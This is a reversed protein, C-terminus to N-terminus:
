LIYHSKMPPKKSLELHIKKQVKLVSNQLNSQFHQDTIKCLLQCLFFKCEFNNSEQWYMPTQPHFYLTIRVNEEEEEKTARCGPTPNPM